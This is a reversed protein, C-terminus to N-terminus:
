IIVDHLGHCWKNPREPNKQEYVNNAKSSLNSKNYYFM